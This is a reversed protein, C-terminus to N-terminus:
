DEMMQKNLYPSVKYSAVKWTPEKDVPDLSWSHGKVGLWVDVEFNKDPYKLMGESLAKMFKGLNIYIQKDLGTGDPNKIYVGNIGLEGFMQLLHFTKKPDIVEGQVFNPLAVTQWLSKPHERGWKGFKEENM